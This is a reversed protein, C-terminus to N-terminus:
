EATAETSTEAEGAGDEWRDPVAGTLRVPKFPVSVTKMRLFLVHEFELNVDLGLVITGTKEETSGIHKRQAMAVAVKMQDGYVSTLVARLKEPGTLVKGDRGRFGLFELTETVEYRMGEFIYFGGKVPAVALDQLMLSVLGGPLDAVVLTNM